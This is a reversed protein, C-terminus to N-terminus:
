KKIHKISKRIILKSPVKIYFTRTDRRSVLEFLLKAADVYIRRMNRDIATFYPCDFVPNKEYGDLNDISLIDPLEGHRLLARAAGRAFYGSGAILLTRSWDYPPMEMFHCYAAMEVMDSGSGAISVTDLKHLVNQADLMRKVAKWNNLANDHYSCLYLIKDYFDLDCYAAFEELAPEINQVVESHGFELRIDVQGIRVVPINLRALAASTYKDVFCDQLLLGNLGAMREAAQSGSLEHYGIIRPIANLKELEAFMACTADSFLCDQNDPIIPVGAYGLHPKRLPDNKLCFRGAGDRVLFDQAALEELMRSITLPTAHYRKALQRISGIRSGAHLEKEFIDQQLREVLHERKHIIQDM